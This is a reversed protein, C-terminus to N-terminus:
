KIHNIQSSLNLFKNSVVALLKKPPKVSQKLCSSYWYSRRWLDWGLWQLVKRRKAVHSRWPNQNIGTQSKKKTSTPSKKLYNVKVGKLCKQIEAQAKNLYQQREKKPMKRRLRGMIVFINKSPVGRGKGTRRFPNLFNIFPNVSLKAM